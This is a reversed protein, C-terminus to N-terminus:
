NQKSREHGKLELLQSIEKLELKDIVSDAAAAKIETILDNVDDESVLKLAETNESFRKIAEMMETKESSEKVSNMKKALEDKVIGAIIKKGPNLIFNDFHNQFVYLVAGVIITIVAIATIFCGKKM